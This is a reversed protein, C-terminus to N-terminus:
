PVTSVTNLRGNGLTLHGALFCTEFQCAVWLSAERCFNVGWQRAAIKSECNGKDLNDRLHGGLTGRGWLLPLIGRECYGGRHPYNHPLHAAFITERCNKGRPMLIGRRDRQSVAQNGDHFFCPSPGFPAFCALFLGKPCNRSKGQPQPTHLYLDRDAGSFAGILGLLGSKGPLIKTRNGRFKQPKLGRKDICLRLHPNLLHSAFGLIDSSFPTKQIKWTSKLGEPFYAIAWGCGRGNKLEDQPAGNKMEPTGWSSAGFAGEVCHFVSSGCLDKMQHAM